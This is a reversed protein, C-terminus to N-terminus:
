VGRLLGSNYVVMVSGDAVFVVQVTYTSYDYIIRDRRHFIQPVGEPLALPVCIWQNTFAHCFRQWCTPQPPQTLICRGLVSVREGSQFRLQGTEDPVYRYRAIAASSTQATSAWVFMALILWGHRLNM